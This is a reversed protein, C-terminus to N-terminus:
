IKTLTGINNLNGINLPLQGFINNVPLTSPLKNKKSSKASKNKNNQVKKVM